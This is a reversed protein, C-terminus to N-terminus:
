LEVTLMWVKTAADRAQELATCYKSMARFEPPILGSDLAKKAGAIYGDLEAILKNLEVKDKDGALRRELDVLAPQEGRAMM